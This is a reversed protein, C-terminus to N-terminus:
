PLKALEEHIVTTVAELYAPHAYYPPVVRLAPVRRERMLAKFLVDLASAPARAGIKVLM